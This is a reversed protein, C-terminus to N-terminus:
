KEWEEYKRENLEAVYSLGCLLSGQHGYNQAYFLKRFIGILLFGNKRECTTVKLFSM